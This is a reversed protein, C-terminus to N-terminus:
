FCIKESHGRKEQDCYESEKISRKKIAEGIIIIKRNLKKLNESM